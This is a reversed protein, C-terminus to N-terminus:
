FSNYERFVGLEFSRSFTGACLYENLVFHTYITGEHTLRTNEEDRFISELASAVIRTYKAPILTMCIFFSKPSCTEVIWTLLVIWSSLDLPAEFMGGCWLVPFPVDYKARLAAHQQMALQIVERDRRLYTLIRFVTM